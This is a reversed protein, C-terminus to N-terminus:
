RFVTMGPHDHVPIVKGQRMVMVFVQFHDAEYITYYELSAKPRKKIMINLIVEVGLVEFTLRSLCINMADFAIRDNPRRYFFDAFACLTHILNGQM